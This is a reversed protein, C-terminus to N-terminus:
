DGIGRSAARGMGTGWAEATLRYFVHPLGAHVIDREYVFGLKQMVRQSALNTTLTFCVIDPLTLREFGVGLIAASAETAFGKGWEDAMTAYALEVETDTHRQLGARGVFRGDDRARWVYLGFGERAWHAVQRELGQRTREDPLPLGDASLTKMVRPDRHLRYIDDLHDPRIRAGVLRATELIDPAQV